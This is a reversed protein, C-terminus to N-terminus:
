EEGERLRHAAGARVVARACLLATVTVAALVAIVCLVVPSAPPLAALRVPTTDSFQPVAPLAFLLALIGAPIGVVAAAGLLLLQEVFAAGFLQRRRFGLAALAASEYSRRRLAATISVATGGMALLAGVLSCLALLRLSLAPGERALAATREAITTRGEVVLGAARLRHLADPPAHPGLWVSWTADVAFAPLAAQFSRLDVVVGDDLARPVVPDAAVVVLRTSTDDSAAATLSAGLRDDRAGAGGVVAPVPDLLDGHVLGGTGNAATTFRDELGASTPLIRDQADGQETAPRWGGRITLDAPLPRGDVALARVLMAGTVTGPATVDGLLTIGTLTCGAACPVAARYTSAGHRLRGADEQVTAGQVTRLTFLVRPTPGGVVDHLEIRASLARGTLRLPPPSGHTLQAALRAPSPMSAAPAGVARLRRADVAIVYGPLDAGGWTTWTAAAAAWRGEPDARTVQGIVDEGATYGVSVVQDAGVEVAARTARNGAAVSEGGIGFVALGLAVTLVAVLRLGAPRRVVQRVALFLAIRRSLATAPVLPRLLVPLLRAGLFGVACVLLGPALLVPAGISPGISRLAAFAIAAVVVVVGDTMAGARAPRQVDRTRRWQELVPRRLAGWASQVVAVSGGALAAVLALIAVPPFAVPTGPLLVSRTLLVGAAWGAVVGVPAAALLLAVPEGLGFRILAPGDFGRLKALAIDASRSDITDVLVRHLVICGLLALQLVVLATAADIRAQVERARDLVRDVATDVALGGPRGAREVQLVQRRLSGLDAIRVGADALPLDVAAQVRADSTLASFTSRATFVTDGVPHGDPEVSQEFYGQGSWDASGPDRPTYVGVIRVPLSAPSSEADIQLRGGLHWGSGLAVSRASVMAEGAAQPCRGADLHVLACTGSRWVLRTHQYGSPTSGTAVIFLSAFRTPRHPIPPLRAAAALRADAETPTLEPSRHSVGQLRLGTQAGAAHLVDQLGSEAAALAFVPGLVASTCVVVGCLWTIVSLAARWRLARLALRM